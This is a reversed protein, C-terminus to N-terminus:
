GFSKFLCSFAGFIAVILRLMLWGEGDKHKALAENVSDVPRFISFLVRGINALCCVGIMAFLNLPAQNKINFVVIGAIFIVICIILRRKLAYVERSAYNAQTGAEKKPCNLCIPKNDRTYLANQVCDFGWEM